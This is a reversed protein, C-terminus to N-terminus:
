TLRDSAINNKFATLANGFSHTWVRQYGSSTPQLQGPVPFPASTVNTLEYSSYEVPCHVHMSAKRALCNLTCERIERTWPNDVATTDKCAQTAQSPTLEKGQIHLTTSHYAKHQASPTAPKPREHFLEAWCLGHPEPSSKQQDLEAQVLRRFGSISQRGGINVSSPKRQLAACNKTSRAVNCKCLTFPSSPCCRSTRVSPVDSAAYRCLFLFM